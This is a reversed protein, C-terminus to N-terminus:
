AAMLHHWSNTCFSLQKRGHVNMNVLYGPAHTYKASFATLLLRCTQSWTWVPSLASHVFDSALRFFHM